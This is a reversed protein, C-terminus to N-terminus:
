AGLVFIWVTVVVGALWVLSRLAARDAVYLGVYVLRLVLWAAALLDLRDQPAETLHAVIVAAAFFPLAEFSNNMAAIARQRYGQLDGEWARPNANDYDKRGAKAIGACLVPLFFSVLLIWLSLTFTM